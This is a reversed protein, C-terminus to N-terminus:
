KKIMSFVVTNSVINSNDKLTVWVKIRYKKSVGKGIFINFDPGQWKDDEKTTLMINNCDKNQNIWNIVVPHENYTDADVIKIDNGNTDLEAICYHWNFDNWEYDINKNINIYNTQGSNILIDQGGNDLIMDANVVYIYTKLGAYAKSEAIVKVFLKRESGGYTLLGDSITTSSDCDDVSWIVDQNPNDGGFIRATFQMTGKNQGNSKGTFAVYEGEACARGESYITITKTDEEPVYEVDKGVPIKNRMTFNQTATYKKDGSKFDVILRISNRNGTDSVEADFGAVYDAM